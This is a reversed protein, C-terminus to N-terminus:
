SPQYDSWHRLRELSVGYQNLSKGLRYSMKNRKEYHGSLPNEPDIVWEYLLNMKDYQRNENLLIESISRIRIKSGFRAMIVVIDISKSIKNRLYETSENGMGSSMYMDVCMDLFSEDDLAHATFINGKTKLNAEYIQKFEEGRSEPVIIRSATTRLASKMLKDFTFGKSENVTLLPIDHGKLVRGIDTEVISAIVVKREEPPTYTLLFNIMTTKGTGMEGGIGINSKGNVLIELLDGMEDNITGYKKMNSLDPTFNAFKRINLIYNESANPIIINIRDKNERTAEIVANEVSNLEKNEFAITRSFVQKLEDLSKFSKSYKIKENDRIYYIESKFEPFVSATVMIEGITEDSDLDELVGMGYLRSYILPAMKTIDDKSLKFSKEKILHQKITSLIYAKANKDFTSRQLMKSHFAIDEKSGVPYDMKEKIFLEIDKLQQDEHSLPESKNSYTIKESILINNDKDKLSITVPLLKRELKVIGEGIPKKYLTLDNSFVETLVFDLGTEYQFEQIDCVDSKDIIVIMQTYTTM